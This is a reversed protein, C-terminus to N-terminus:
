KVISHLFKAKDLGNIFDKSSMEKKGFPKVKTVYILNDKTSIGFSDKTIDCVTSPSFNSQKEGIYAELIKVELDDILCYATPFPYLGRIQNHVEEITKNFDIHEEEKTINYGFTVKQEDQKTYTITNDLIKPITKLLLEKGLISM